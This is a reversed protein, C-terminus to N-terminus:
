VHTLVLEDTPTKADSSRARASPRVGQWDVIEPAREGCHASRARHTTTRSEWFSVQQAVPSFHCTRTLALALCHWIDKISTRRRYKGPSPAGRRATESLSCVLFKRCCRPM